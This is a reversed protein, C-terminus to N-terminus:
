FLTPMQRQAAANLWLSEVAQSKATKMNSAQTHAIRDIRKWGSYREDYDPCRYGSLVVMATCSNLVAALDTQLSDSTDSAYRFGSRTAEEYPPDVYFLLGPKDHKKILTLADCHEIQVNKLRQSLAMVNQPIVWSAAMTHSTDNPNAFVRWTNQGDTVGGFSRGQWSRVYFRRAQELADGVTLDACRGFEERSYPTFELQRILQEPRERLVQFFNVLDSNLDNYVEIPAPYKRLLVSSAGGFPEIYCKHPPLYQLIWDALKWKGGFYRM